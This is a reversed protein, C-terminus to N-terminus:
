LIELLLVRPISRPNRNTRKLEAIVQRNRQKIMEDLFFNYWVPEMGRVMAQFGGIWVNTQEAISSNFIWREKKPDSSDLLETFNAPNCHKQCHIDTKKHKRQHHFVDVPTATDQWHPLKHVMRHLHCADDYFLYEPMSEVTPFTMECFRQPSIFSCRQFQRHNDNCVKVASLAESGFLTARAVVVGCPRCMLQENHTRARAFHAKLTRNGLDSKKVSPLMEPGAEAEIEDDEDDLATLEVELQDM